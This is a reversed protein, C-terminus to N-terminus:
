ENDDWHDHEHEEVEGAYVSNDEGELFYGSPRNYGGLKFYASDMKAVVLDNNSTGQVIKAGIKKSYNQLYERLKDEMQTKFNASYDTNAEINDVVLAIRDNDDHGIWCWAAVVPVNKKEDTILVVQVGLDTLYDAITSEAGMHGSDIRICCDTYNGLYLDKDPNRDWLGVKMHQGVLNDNEKEYFLNALTKSDSQYHDIHEQVLENKEQILSETRDEGLAPSIMAALDNDFESLRVGLLQVKEQLEKKTSDIKRKLKLLEKRKQSVPTDTDNEKKDLMIETESLNAYTSSVDRKVLDLLAISSMVKDWLPIDKADSIQKGIGNIGKSIGEAKKIDGIQEAIQKQEMLKNLQTQLFVMDKLPVSVAMLEKRYEELVEKITGTYRSITEQIREIPTVITDSFKLSEDKGLTFYVEDEYNLWEGIDVGSAQLTKTIESNRRYQNLRQQMAIRFDRSEVDITNAGSLIEAKNKYLSQINAQSLGDLSKFKLLLKPGFRENEQLAEALFPFKELMESDFLHVYPWVSFLADLSGRCKSSLKPFEVDLKEFLRMKEPDLNIIEQSTVGISLQSNLMVIDEFKGNSLLDPIHVRAADRVQESRVFESELLGSEILKMARGLGNKSLNQIFAQEISSKIETSSLFERSFQTKKSYSIIGDIDESLVSEKFMRQYASQVREDSINTVNIQFSEAFQAADNEGRETLLRVYEPLLCEQRVEHSVFPLVKREVLLDLAVDFAGKNVLHVFTQTCINQQAEFTKLMNVREILFDRIDDNRRRHRDYDLISYSDMKLLYAEVIAQDAFGFPLGPLIGTLKEIYRKQGDIDNEKKFIQQLVDDVGNMMDEESIFLTNTLTKGIESGEVNNYFLRGALLLKGGSSRIQQNQFISEQSIDFFQIFQNIDAKVHNWGGYAQQAKLEENLWWNVGGIVSDKDISKMDENTLSFEKGINVLDNLGGSGSRLISEIRRYALDKFKEQAIIQEDSIGLLKAYFRLSGVEDLSGSELVHGYLRARVSSLIVEDPQIKQLVEEVKNNQGRMTMKGERSVYAFLNLTAGEKVIQVEENTCGLKEIAFDITELRGEMMLRSLIARAQERFQPAQKFTESFLDILKSEGSDKGLWFNGKQVAKLFSEEMHARLDDTRSEETLFKEYIGVAISYNGYSLTSLIQEQINQQSEPKSLFEESLDFQKKFKEIRDSGRDFGSYEVHKKLNRLAWERKLSVIEDRAKFEESVLTDLMGVAYPHREDDRLRQEYIVSAKTKLVEDIDYAKALAQAFRTNEASLSGELVKDVIADSEDKSLLFSKSILDKDFKRNQDLDRILMKEVAPFIEDITFFSKPYARVMEAVESPNYKEIGKSLGEKAMKKLGADEELSPLLQFVFKIFKEGYYSLAIGRLEEKKAESIALFDKEESKFFDQLACADRLLARTDKLLIKEDSLIKEYISRAQVGLYEGNVSIVTQESDLNNQRMWELIKATVILGDATGKRVHFDAAKAIVVERQFKVVDSLNISTVIPFDSNPTLSKLDNELQALAVKETVSIEETQQVLGSGIGTNRNEDFKM